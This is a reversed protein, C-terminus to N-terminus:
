MGDSTVERLWLCFCAPGPCLSWDLSAQGWHTCVRVAKEGGQPAPCDERWEESNEASVEHLSHTTIRSTSRDLDTMKITGHIGRRAPRATLVAGLLSAERARATPAQAEARGLLERSSCSLLGVPQLGLGLPRPWPEAAPSPFM